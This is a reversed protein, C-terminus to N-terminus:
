KVGAMMRRVKPSFLMLVLGCLVAASGLIGFYPALGISDLGKALQGGITDGVANSLFWLALLQSAMGAPALRTTASPGNTSLM